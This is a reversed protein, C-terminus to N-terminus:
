RRFSIRPRIIGHSQMQKVPEIAKDIITNNYLDLCADNTLGKVLENADINNIVIKWGRGVKKVYSIM